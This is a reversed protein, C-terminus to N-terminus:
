APNRFSISDGGGNLDGILLTKSTPYDTALHGVLAENLSTNFADFRLDALRTRTTSGLPIM